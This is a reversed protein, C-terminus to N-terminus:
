HQLAMRAASRGGSAGARQAGTANYSNKAAPADTRRCRTASRQLRTCFPTLPLTTGWATRATCATGRYSIVPTGDADRLLLRTSSSCVYLAFSFPPVASPKFRLSAPVFRHARCRYRIDLALFLRMDAISAQPTRNSRRVWRRLFFVATSCITSLARLSNKRSSRFRRYQTGPRLHGGPEVGPILTRREGPERKTIRWGVKDQPAGRRGTRGDTWPGTTWNVGATKATWGSWGAVIIQGDNM